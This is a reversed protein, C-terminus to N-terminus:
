HHQAARGKMGMHSNVAASACLVIHLLSWLRAGVGAAPRMEGTWTHGRICAHTHAPNRFGPSQGSHRVRAKLRWAFMVASIDM